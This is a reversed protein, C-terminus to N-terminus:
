AGGEAERAARSLARIGDLPIAIWDPRNNLEYAVEHLAKELTFADLLTERAPPAPLLSSGEAQEAYARLFSGSVWSEWAQAWAERAGDGPAERAGGLAARAVYGFSRLMGALDVLSLEKQRRRALSRMPEGEFDLLVFDDGVRLVQGLHYDGHVRIRM